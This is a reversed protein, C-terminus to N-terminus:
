VYHIDLHMTFAIYRSFGFTKYYPISSYKTDYINTSKKYVQDFNIFNFSRKPVSPTFYKLFSLTGDVNIIFMYPM